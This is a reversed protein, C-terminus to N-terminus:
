GGRDVRSVFSWALGSNALKRAPGRVVRYRLLAKALDDVKRGASAEIQKIREGVARGM